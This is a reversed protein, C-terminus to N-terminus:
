SESSIGVELEEEIPAAQSLMKLLLQACQNTGPKSKYNGNFIHNSENGIGLHGLQINLPATM